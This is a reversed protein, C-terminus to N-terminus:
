EDCIFKKCEDKFAQVVEDDFCEECYIGEDTEFYCDEQIPEGCCGCIPCRSLRDEQMADHRHFDALPENTWM